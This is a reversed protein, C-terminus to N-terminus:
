PRGEPATMHAAGRKRIMSPATVQPARCLLIGVPPARDLTPARQQGPRARSALLWRVDLAFSVTLALLAAGALWAAWAAPLPPLLCLILTAGQVAFIAKRRRSEPLPRRLAPLLRAAFVFAYRMLGIALVWPGARGSHWVLLALTLLLLADVEADFRAGFSSALRLRRALWGDLGDLGLALGALAIVSWGAVEAEGDLLLAGGMLCTLGARLLTVQNALGFRRGRLQWLAAAAVASGLAAYGAFGILVQPAAWGPHSLLVAGAAAVATAVALLAAATSCVLAPSPEPGPGALTTM